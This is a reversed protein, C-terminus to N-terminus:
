QRQLYVNMNQGPVGGSLAQGIIQGRAQHIWNAFNASQEDIATAQLRNVTNKSDFQPDTRQVQAFIAQTPDYGSSRQLLKMSFLMNLLQMQTNKDANQVGLLGLQEAARLKAATTVSAGGFVVFGVLAFLRLSEWQKTAYSLVDDDDPANVMNPDILHSIAAHLFASDLMGEDPHYEVVETLLRGAKMQDAALGHDGSPIRWTLYAGQPIGIKSRCLITSTGDLRVTVQSNAPGITEQNEFQGTSIGVFYYQHKSKPEVGNWSAFVPIHSEALPMNNFTADRRGFLLDRQSVLGLTRTQQQSYRRRDMELVDLTARAISTGTPTEESNNNYDPIWQAM